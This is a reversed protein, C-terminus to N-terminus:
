VQGNIAFDATQSGQRLQRRKQQLWQLSILTAANNFRGSYLTEFVDRADLIHVKIDEGESDLGHVGGARSLDCYACFLHLKEDSGGPSALYNCIYELREVELDAEEKMERIAVQKPSQGDDIIGAVVELCWPGGTEELAGVRFQEVLGILDNQPDYLVVGAADGRVYLERSIERSWGGAFLKHRLRLQKMKFFGDYVTDEAIIEVAQRDFGSKGATM